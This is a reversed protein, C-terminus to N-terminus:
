VGSRAVVVASMSRRLQPMTQTAHVSNPLTPAQCTLGEGRPQRVRSVHVSQLGRRGALRSRRAAVGPRGPPPARPTVAARLGPKCRSVTCTVEM